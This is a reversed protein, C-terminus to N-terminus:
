QVLLVVRLPAKRKAQVQGPKKVTTQAQLNSSVVSLTFVIALVSFLKKMTKNNFSNSIIACLRAM